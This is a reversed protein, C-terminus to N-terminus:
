KAGGFKRAMRTDDGAPLYLRFEAGGRKSKRAVIRGGHGEAIRHAIALGLGTGNSKTTFFPNFIRHALEAPIGPGDDEVVICVLSELRNVAGRRLWVRGNRGVADLANFLLNLLVREVQRADCFVELDSLAEDLDITAELSQAQPSAHACAEEIIEYLRVRHMDPEAPGAFSLIDSIISELHSVGVTIRQAIRHQETEESLDRVLLSAYLGIAGLPNRIEHALGAAMEGLAVLRERRELERNKENLEERLRCVEAALLEHSQKLREAVDNYAGIMAALDTEGLTLSTMM